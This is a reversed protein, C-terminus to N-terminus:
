RKIEPGTSYIIVCAVWNPSRIFSYGFRVVTRNSMAETMIHWHKESTKFLQISGMVSNPIQNGPMGSWCVEYVGMGWDGFKEARKMPSYTAPFEPEFHGSTSKSILYKAHYAAASDLNPTRNVIVTPNILAKLLYFVSDKPHQALVCYNLILFMFVLIRKM